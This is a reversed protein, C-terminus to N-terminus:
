AGEDSPVTVEETWFHPLVWAEAEAQAQLFPPIGTYFGVCGEAQCIALNADLDSGVPAILWKQYIIM